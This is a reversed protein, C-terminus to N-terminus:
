RRETVVKGSILTKKSILSKTGKVSSKGTLVCFNSNCPFVFVM